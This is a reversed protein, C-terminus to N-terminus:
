RLTKFIIKFRKSIQVGGRDKFVARISFPRGAKIRFGMQSAVRLKYSNLYTFMPSFGRVRASVHLVYDGPKLVKQFVKLRDKMSDTVSARKAKYINTKRKNHVLVYNVEM